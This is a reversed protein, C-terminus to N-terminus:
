GFMWYKICTKARPQIKYYPLFVPSNTWICKSSNTAQTTEQINSQKEHVDNTVKYTESGYLDFYEQSFASFSLLYQTKNEKANRDADGGVNDSDDVSIDDESDDVNSDDFNNDDDSDDLNCWWQQWWWISSLVVKAM